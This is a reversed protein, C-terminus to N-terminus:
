SFDGWLSQLLTIAVIPATETRLVRPGITLPEFGSHLSSSIEADTLGGEPGILLATSSVQQSRLDTVTKESRHHMVFKKDTALSHFWLDPSTPANIIPPINRYSQECANIAIKRWHRIKKDARDGKLRVESRATFLPTIEAVGVETAKQIVWDMRDGRSLGIGLSIYLPSQRNTDTFDSILARVHKGTIQGLTAKYEGGTGNFLVIKAGAKLRLVVTLHHASHEELVIETDATLPQDIFVRIDRM